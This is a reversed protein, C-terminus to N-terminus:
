RHGGFPLVVAQQESAREFANVWALWALRVRPDDIARYARSAARARQFQAWLEGESPSM